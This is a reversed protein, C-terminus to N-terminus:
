PQREILGCAIRKGSNLEHVVMVRGTIDASSLGTAVSAEQVSVGDSAAVYVVPKWPDAELAASFFHGGVDAANECSTGSHVHIGCGNAIGEAAGAGCATDLGELSWSLTQSATTETGSSTKVEIPGSVELPGDYGPYKNFKMVALKSGTGTNRGIVGCAIRAGSGLQHVVMVRGDIQASSLGTVVSVGAHETSLGDTSTYVVPAWPDAALEDSYYHGGVTAADECTKGSHIHIGCGNKVDDAAGASCATDLGTLSWTLTQVASPGDGETHVTMQGEVALDGKYGPYKSFSPVFLTSPTPPKKPALTTVITQRTIKGASDFLFTDTAKPNSNSYWVLFVEQMATEVRPFETAVGLGLDDGVAAANMDQWLQTFMGGIASLGKYETYGEGEAQDWAFVQVTSSETYDALIKNLDQAGFAEFHNNWGMTVPSKPDANPAPPNATFEAPCASPQTAVINQKKIMIRGGGLGIIEKWLFTDTAKEIGQDVSQWVLFVNAADLSSGVTADDVTPNAADGAFAPVNLGPTPTLTVFLDTFFQRIPALGKFEALFGDSGPGCADNHIQLVTEEDYDLMIKDVDQAGFAEFHNLWAEGVTTPNYPAVFEDDLWALAFNIHCGTNCSTDMEEQTRCLRLGANTCIAQAEFFTHSPTDRGNKLQTTRTTTCDVHSLGQDFLGVHSRINRTAVGKENCCVAEGVREDDMATRPVGWAPYVDGNTSCGDILRHSSCTVTPVWEDADLPSLDCLGKAPLSPFAITYRSFDIPPTEQEEAAGLLFNIQHILTDGAKKVEIRNAMDKEVRPVLVENFFITADTFCKDFAACAAELESKWDCYQVDRVAKQINYARIADTLASDAATFADRMADYSAQQAAFWISYESKEFYVDLAPMTRAPFDPCAPAAAIMQMHSDFEEWKTNNAETKEDVVGQLRDLETQKDQVHQHLVGLDGEPAQRQTIDANCAAADDVAAALAAVDANHSADMSSYITKDVLDIVQRLLAADDESIHDDPGGAEALISSVEASAAKLAALSGATSSLQPVLDGITAIRKSVAARSIEPRMAMAPCAALGVFATFRM